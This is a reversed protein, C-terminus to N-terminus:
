HCLRYHISTDDAREGNNYTWIHHINIQDSRTWQLISVCKSFHTSTMQTLYARAKKKKQQKAEVRMALSCHHVDYHLPSLNFLWVMLYHMLCVRKLCDMGFLRRSWVILARSICKTTNKSNLFTSNYQAQSEMHLIEISEIDNTKCPLILSRKNKDM